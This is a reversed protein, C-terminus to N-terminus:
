ILTEFEIGCGTANGKLTAHVKTLFSPTRDSNWPYAGQGQVAVTAQLNGKSYIFHFIERYITVDGGSEIKQGEAM